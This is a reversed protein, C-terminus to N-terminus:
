DLVDDQDFIADLILINRALVHIDYDNIVLNIKGIGSSDSLSFLINRLDGCALCLINIDKPPTKLANEFSPDFSQYHWANIDIPKLGDLPLSENTCFINTAPNNGIAYYYQRLHILICPSLPFNALTVKENSPIGGESAM